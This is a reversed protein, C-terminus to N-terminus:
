INTWEAQAGFRAMSGRWSELAIDGDEIEMQFRIRTKDPFRMGPRLGMAARINEPVAGGVHVGAGIPSPRSTLGVANLVYTPSIPLEGKTLGERAISPLYEKCTFHYLIM